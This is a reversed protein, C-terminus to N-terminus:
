FNCEFGSAGDTFMVMLAFLLNEVNEGTFGECVIIAFGDNEFGAIGNDASGAFFM